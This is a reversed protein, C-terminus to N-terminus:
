GRSGSASGALLGSALYGWVKQGVLEFTADKVLIGLSWVIDARQLRPVAMCPRIVGWCGVIKRARNQGRAKRAGEGISSMNPLRWCALQEKKEDSSKRGLKRQRALKDPTYRQRSKKTDVRNQAVSVRELDGFTSLPKKSRNLDSSQLAEPREAGDSQPQGGVVELKKDRLM